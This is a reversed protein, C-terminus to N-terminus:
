SPYPAIASHYSSPFVSTRPSSQFLYKKNLNKDTYLCVVESKAFCKNQKPTLIICYSVFQLSYAMLAIIEYQLGLSGSSPHYVGFRCMCYFLLM